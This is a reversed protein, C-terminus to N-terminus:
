FPLNPETTIYQLEYAGMFQDHKKETEISKISRNASDLFYQLDKPNIWKKSFDLYITFHLHNM